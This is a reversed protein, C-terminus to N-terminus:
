INSQNYVVPASNIEPVDKVGNNFVNPVAPKLGNMLSTIILASNYCMDRISKDVTMSMKGEKIMQVANDSHDMGTLFPYKPVSTYFEELAQITGLAGNDTPALIMEPITDKDYYDTLRKLVASKADESKWSALTVDEYKTKGSPVILSGNKIYPELCDYAGQFYLSANNDSTPGGFLEITMSKKGSLLFAQVLYQGQLAGVEYSNCDSYYDVASSAYMMRDHAVINLDQINDFVKADNLVKYDIPVIIFNKIGANLASKIQALQDEAGTNNNALQVTFEVDYKGLAEELYQKDKAWRTSSESTPVFVAVRNDTKANEKTCSTFLGFVTAITLITIIKKMKANNIFSTEKSPSLPLLIVRNNKIKNNLINSRINASRMMNIKDVNM